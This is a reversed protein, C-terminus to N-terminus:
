IREGTGRDQRAHDYSIRTYIAACFCGGALLGWLMAVWGAVPRLVALADPVPVFIAAALTGVGLLFAATGLLWWTRNRRAYYTMLDRQREKLENM